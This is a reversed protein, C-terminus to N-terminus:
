DKEIIECAYGMRGLRDAIERADKMATRKTKRNYKSQMQFVHTAARWGGRDSKYVSITATKMKTEGKTEPGKNGGGSLGIM